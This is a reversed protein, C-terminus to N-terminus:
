AACGMLLWGVLWIGAVGMAVQVRHSADFCLLTGGGLVFVRIKLTTVVCSTLYPREYSFAMFDNCIM